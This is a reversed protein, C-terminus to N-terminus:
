VDTIGGMMMTLMASELAALREEQTPQTTTEKPKRQVEQYTYGNETCYTEVFTQDAVITNIEEGGQLIKYIMCVCGSEPLHYLM